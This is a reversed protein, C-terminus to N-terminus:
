EIRENSLDAGQIQDHVQTTYPLKQAFGRVPLENGQSVLYILNTFPTKKGGNRVSLVPTSLICPWSRYIQGFTHYHDILPM